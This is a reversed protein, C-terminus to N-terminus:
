RAVKLKRAKREAKKSTVEARIIRQCVIEAVTSLPLTYTRRRRLPRVVFLGSNREVTVTGEQYRSASDLRGSVRFRAISM